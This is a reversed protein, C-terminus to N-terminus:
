RRGKRTKRKLFFAHVGVPVSFLYKRPAGTRRYAPQNSPPPNLKSGDRTHHIPRRFDFIKFGSHLESRGACPPQENAEPAIPPTRPRAKYRLDWSAPGNAKLDCVFGAGDAGTEKKQCCGKFECRLRVTGSRYWGPGPAFPLRPRRCVATAM